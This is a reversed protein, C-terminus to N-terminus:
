IFMEEESRAGDRGRSRSRSTLANIAASVGQILGAATRVPSVVGKSVLNRTREAESLTRNVFEDARLVHLRTRDVIENVTADVKEVQSRLTTTTEAMNDLITTVRPANEDVLAHIRQLAPLGRQAVEDVLWDVRKSTKKTATYMGALILMQLVIAAAAIAIFITVLTEM